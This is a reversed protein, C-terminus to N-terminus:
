RGALMGALIDLQGALTRAGTDDLPRALAERIGAPGIVAVTALGLRALAETVRTDEPLTLAAAPM